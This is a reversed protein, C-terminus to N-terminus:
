KVLLLKARACQSAITCVCISRREEFGEVPGLSVSGVRGSFPSPAFPINTKWKSCLSGYRHSCLAPCLSGSGSGRCCASLPPLPWSLIIPFPSNQDIHDCGVSWGGPPVILIKRCHRILCYPVRRDRGCTLHQPQCTTFITLNALDLSM